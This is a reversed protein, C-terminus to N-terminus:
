RASTSVPWLKDHKNRQMLNDKLAKRARFLYSKVTGEPLDTIQAIETYSLDEQHYLTILTKQLVPLEDIVLTLIASLEKNYINNETETQFIDSRSQINNGPGPTDHASFHNVEILIMKKKELYSRCTNFAIQAIWTSLKSQFKFSNLKHFAKLYIDQSIDKREEHNSIMKFVIGAVLQETNKMIASFANTDGGLVRKVLYQDDNLSGSNREMVLKVSM